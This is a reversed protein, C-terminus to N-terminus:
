KLEEQRGREKLPGVLDELDKLEMCAVYDHWAPRKFCYICTEGAKARLKLLRLVLYPSEPAQQISKVEAIFWSGKVDPGPKGLVGVRLGGLRRAVSREARKGRARPSEPKVPPAGALFQRNDVGSPYWSPPLPNGM